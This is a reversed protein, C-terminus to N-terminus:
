ESKNKLHEYLKNNEQLIIGGFIEDNKLEPNSLIYGNLKFKEADTLKDLSKLLKCLDLKDLDFGRMMYKILRSETYKSWKLVKIVNSNLSEKFEKTVCVEKENVIAAQCISIDYTNLIEKIYSIRHNDDKSFYSILQIPHPTEKIFIQVIDNTFWIEKVVEFKTRIQDLCYNRHETYIDIDEAITKPDIIYRAYGGCIFGLENLSDILKKQFKSFNVESQKKPSFIGM